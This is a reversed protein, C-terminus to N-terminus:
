NNDRNPTSDKQPQINQPLQQQPQQQSLIPFMFQQPPVQPQQSQQQPVQQQQFTFPQSVQPQQFTFPQSVQPQQYQQQPVQPQQFTFPQSVQPQQYQQQPVQPQQFTFPQPQPPPQSVPKSPNPKPRPQQQQLFDESAVQMMRQQPTAYSNTTSKVSRQQMHSIGYSALKQTYGSFDVNPAEPPRVERLDRILDDNQQNSASTQIKKITEDIIKRSNEPKKQEIEKKAQIMAEAAVVRNVQFDIYEDRKEEKVVQTRTVTLKSTKTEFLSTSINFYSLSFLAVETEEPEKVGPIGCNIVIDRKEEGFLDKLSITTKKGETTMKHQGM